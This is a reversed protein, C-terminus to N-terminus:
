ASTESFASERAAMLDTDDPDSIGQTRLHDCIRRIFSWHGANAASASIAKLTSIKWKGQTGLRRTLFNAIGEADPTGLKIRAFLRNHYLQMAEEAASARLKQLVTGVGAVIFLAGTQNLLTKIINLVSATCEHGEDLLIFVRREGLRNRVMDLRDAKSAPMKDQSVGLAKLFAGLAARPSKWTEDADLRICNGAGVGKEIIDLSSTKGSGSGGEVVILRDKGHHHLLRLAALTVEEAGALDDYLEEKETEQMEATLTALVSRYAPIKSAVDMGEFDDRLIKAWTKASGLGAWKKVWQRDSPQPQHLKRLADIKQGLESLIAIHAQRDNAAIEERAEPHSMAAFTSM